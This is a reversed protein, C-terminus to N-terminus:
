RGDVARWVVAHRGRPTREREGSDVVLGLRVLEGRRPRETNGDMRLQIQIAADTYGSPSRRLLDLILRRDADRKGRGQGAAAALSTPSHAQAPAHGLDM